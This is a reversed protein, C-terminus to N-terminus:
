ATRTSKGKESGQRDTQRDTQLEGGGERERERERELHDPQSTRLSRTNKSHQEFQEGQKTVATKISDEM